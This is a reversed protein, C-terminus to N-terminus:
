KGKKAAEYTAKYYDTDSMKDYDVGGDNAPPTPTQAGQKGETVIFDAWESKIGDVVTKADKINGDADLEIKSIDSVKLVAEIRKESIGAERLLAKYAATKTAAKAKADIDAKYEDFQKQLDTLKQASEAANDLKAQAKLLDKEVNALRTAETKLKDREEILKDREDTLGSITDKHAAIIQEIKEDSIDMAQLMKRTLAM